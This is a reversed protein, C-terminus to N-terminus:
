GKGDRLISTAQNLHHLIAKLEDCTPKYSPYFLEADFIERACHISEGLTAREDEIRKVEIKIEEPTAM